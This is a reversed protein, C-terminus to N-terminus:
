CWATLWCVPGNKLCGGVLWILWGGAAGVESRLCIHTDMCCIYGRLCGAQQATRAQLPMRCRCLFGALVGLALGVRSSSHHFIRRSCSGHARADLQACAPAAVRVRPILGALWVDIPRCSQQLQAPMCILAAHRDAAYLELGLVADALLSLRVRRSALFELFRECCCDAAYCCGQM